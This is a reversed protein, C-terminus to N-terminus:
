GLLRTRAEDTDREFKLFYHSSIADSLALLQKETVELAQPTMERVTAAQLRGLLARALRLPEVPLADDRQGPLAELQRAIEAVQFHLARPNGPDLLVLDHVPADIPETLYRSRYVIQSDCLDLLASLADSRDDVAMLERATRSLALAREVRVGLELFRWAPGRVM